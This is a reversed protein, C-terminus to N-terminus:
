ANGQIWKAVGAIGAGLMVIVLALAYLPLAVFIVILLRALLLPLTILRTM